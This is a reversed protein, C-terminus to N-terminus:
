SYRKVNRLASSTHGNDIPQSGTILKAMGNIPRSEERVVMHPDALGGADFLYPSLALHGSEHPDGKLDDYSFLGGCGQCGRGTM